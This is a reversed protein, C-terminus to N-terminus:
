VRRRPNRAVALAEDGLIWAATENHVRGHRIEGVRIQEQPWAQTRQLHEKIRFITDGTLEDVEFTTFGRHGRVRIWGRGIVQRLVLERDERTWKAAQKETFGFQRPKSRVEDFHEIVAISKGEPSIWHGEVGPYVPM